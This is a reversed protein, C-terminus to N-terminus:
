DGAGSLADAILHANTLLLGVLTDAGSGEEGLSGTYLSVVRVDGGVEAAVAEALTPTETTEAFITRVGADRMTEVLAALEASSPDSLTSGGPLVVGVIEFGYRDAFYGFAHHSTVLKKQDSPVVSLIERIEADVGMLVDAYETARGAADSGPAVLQLEDGIFRAAEAMRVPDLWVHPDLSDDSDSFPLPDLMPAIEIVRAGDDRAADIVDLLGEELRLGNVVVLDAGAVLSAQQSSPQYAHPDAGIPILVEVRGADGLIQQAVDGLISTSAVVLIGDDEVGAAGDGGCASSVLALVLLAGLGRKIMERGQLYHSDNKYQHFTVLLWFFHWGGSDITLDFRAEGIPAQAVGGAAPRDDGDEEGGISGEGYGFDLLCQVAFHGERREVSRTRNQLFCPSEGRVSGSAEGAILQGFPQCTMVVVEDARLAAVDFVEGKGCFHLRREPGQYTLDGFGVAEQGGIM